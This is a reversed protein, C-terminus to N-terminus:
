VSGRTAENVMLWKGRRRLQEPPCANVLYKGNVMQWITAENTIPLQYNKSFQSNLISFKHVYNM